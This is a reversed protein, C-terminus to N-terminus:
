LGDLLVVVEVAFGEVAVVLEDLLRCREVVKDVVVDDLVEVVDDLLVVFLEEVAELLTVDAVVELEEGEM